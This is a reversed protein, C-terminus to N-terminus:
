GEPDNIEITESTAETVFMKQITNEIESLTKLVAEIQPKIAGVQALLDGVEKPIM